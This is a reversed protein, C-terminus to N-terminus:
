ASAALAPASEASRLFGQRAETTPAAKLGIPEPVIPWLTGSTVFDAGEACAIDFTEPDEVGNVFFRMNQRTMAARWRAILERRTTMGQAGAVTVPPLILGAGWAGTNVLGEVRREQPHFELLVRSSVTHLLSVWQKLTARDENREIEAVKAATYRRLATPILALQKQYAKQREPHRLTTAHVTYGVICHAGNKRCNILGSVARRLMQLDLELFDCVDHAGLIRYSESYGYRPGDSSPHQPSAYYANLAEQAVSWVPAFGAMAAAPNPPGPPRDLAKADLRFANLSIQGPFIRALTNHLRDRELAIDQGHGPGFVVVMGDDDAVVFDDAGLRPGLLRALAHRPDVPQDAAVVIHLAELARGSSIAQKIASAARSARPHEFDM